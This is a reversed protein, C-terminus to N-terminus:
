FLTNLKYNQATIPM